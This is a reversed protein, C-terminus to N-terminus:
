RCKETFERVYGWWPLGVGEEKGTNEGGYHNWICKQRLV